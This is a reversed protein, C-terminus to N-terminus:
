QLPMGFRDFRPQWADQIDASVLIREAKGILLERPVFGFYRSDASNDRNDGLMMYHGAPVTVTAFNRRAPLQPLLQIRHAQAQGVGQESVRQAQLQGVAAITEAVTDLASYQAARGNIVLQENRMAVTDGPLAIIRKILRTGDLPSSFTVIDGRQPEGTHQLVIDTLPVKLNYALRNVFVVDGEVLNPRMSASPIPNWDAVATRFVGFLMLFLIFGKNARLWTSIRM